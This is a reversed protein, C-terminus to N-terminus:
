KKRLDIKDLEVILSDIFRSADTFKLTGTNFNAYPYDKQAFSIIENIARIISKGNLTKNPNIFGNKDGMKLYIEPNLVHMTINLINTVPYVMGYNFFAYSVMYGYVAEAIHPYGNDRYWAVKEREKFMMDMVTKHTAANAIGFTCKVDYLGELIKEKPQALLKDFEAIIKTNREATSTEDKKFFLTQIREFADTLVGQPCILYDIKYTLDLLLFSIGGALKEHDLKALEEKTANIWGMLCDYKVTRQEETIPVIHETDIQRLSSFESLLIDDQQDAKRSLERLGAYLKSPSADISHSSYKMCLASDNLAFKSYKLGFNLAMLKRMVPISEKEMIAISAEAVFAKSDGRGVIRKSGQILEFDVADGNRTVKVNDISRDKIYNLFYEYSDVYRKEGFAKLSKTWNDLQLVDKNCDTYRGFVVTNYRGGQNDSAGTSKASDDKDSKGGFLKNFISM